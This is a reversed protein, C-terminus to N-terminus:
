SFVSPEVNFYWSFIMKERHGIGRKGSLIESITSELLGTDKVVKKYSVGKADILFVLLAADSVNPEQYHENEYEEVLNMLNRLYKCEEHSITEQDCLEDIRSVAKAYDEDSDIRSINLNM